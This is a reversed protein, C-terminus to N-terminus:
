TRPTSRLLIVKAKSNDMDPMTLGVPANIYTPDAIVYRRGDLVIYDGKVSDDSFEIATALHGPYYVLLCDLGLIDRVLRTLLISRDECDCYPYFLTEEAFFARDHGWIENDYEYQLGTQITNLLINAAEIESKDKLMERLAPYLTTKVHEEMPTDAYMAWRSVVNGGLSSSPYTSYFDLLNKNVAVDFKVGPYGASVISRTDSPNYAFDQSSDISLSLSKEGPFRAQCINLRSPLEMLSYYSGGDVSYSPKGYILHRSGFLMYLNTGDSGLRMKYGSQMYLYALLIQAENEQGPYANQAIIDLMQLYAWDSLKRRERIELCDLITNDYDESAFENLMSSASAEDCRRLTPLDSKKLRVKEPTGFFVFEMYEPRVVPIEKIPDLPQPHPEYEIPVLIEDFVVPRNEIPTPTEGDMIVPPVPKQEPEPIPKTKEFEKWPNKLFETFESMSRRRFNDFDKRSEEVFEALVKREFTLEPKQASCFASYGAMLFILFAIFRRSM